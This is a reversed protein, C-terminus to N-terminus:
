SKRTSSAARSSAASRPKGSPTRRTAQTSKPLSFKVGGALLAILLTNLSVGQEQARRTLEGHLDVPLRLLLRKDNM